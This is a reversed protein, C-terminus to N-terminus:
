KPRRRVATKIPPMKRYHSSVLWCEPTVGEPWAAVYALV